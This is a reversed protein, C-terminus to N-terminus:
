QNKKNDNMGRQGKLLWSFVHTLKVRFEGTLRWDVAGIVRRKTLTGILSEQYSRSMPIKQHRWWFASVTRGELTEEVKECPNVYTAGETRSFILSFNEKSGLIREGRRNMPLGLVGRLYFFVAGHQWREDRPSYPTINTLPPSHSDYIVSWQWRELPSISSKILNDVHISTFPHLESAIRPCYHLLTVTSSCIGWSSQVRQSTGKYHRHGHLMVTFWEGGGGTGRQM